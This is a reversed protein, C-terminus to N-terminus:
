FTPGPPFEKDHERQMKLAARHGQSAQLYNIFLILGRIVLGKWWPDQKPGGAGPGYGVGGPLMLEGMRKREDIKQAVERKFRDVSWPDHEDDDHEDRDRDHDRPHQEDRADSGLEPLLHRGDTLTLNVDDLDDDVDNGNVVTDDSSNTNMDVVNVNVNDFQLGVVDVEEAGAALASDESASASTVARPPAFTSMNRDEPQQQQHQQQMHQVFPNLVSPTDANVVVYNRYKSVATKAMRRASREFGRTGGLLPRFEDDFANMCFEWCISIYRQKIESLKDLLQCGFELRRQAVADQSTTTNNGDVRNNVVHKSTNYGATREDYLALASEAVDRLRTGFDSLPSHWNTEVDIRLGQIAQGVQGVYSHGDAVHNNTQQQTNTTTTTTPISSDYDWLLRIIEGCKYYAALAAQRPLDLGNKLLGGGACDSVATWVQDALADFGGLPALCQRRSMMTKQQEQQRQRRRGQQTASAATAAANPSFLLCHFKHALDKVGVDFAGAAYTMHPLTVVDISFVEELAVDGARLGEWINRLDGMLVRKIDSPLSEGDHDRVVIVVNVPRGSLLAAGAGGGNNNKGGGNDRSRGEGDADATQRQWRQRLALAHAFVTDFLEYNAASYRGIDHAWMNVLVCDSLALTFLTTRNEFTKAGEGRERSDTGEVDLVVYRRTSSSSSSSSSSPRSSDYDGRGGGTAPAIAAWVGLTTRRRGRLPADLVPFTTGFVRNLLTSKGGSQCGVVAVTRYSTLHADADCVPLTGVFHGDADILQTSASSSPASLSTTSGPSPNTGTTEM